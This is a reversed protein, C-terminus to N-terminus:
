VICLTLRCLVGAPNSTKLYQTDDVLGGCGRESVSEFFLPAALDGDIVKAAAREVNRNELDAVAHELDFRGVAIGEEATLIEVLPDDVIKGVFEAFLIADIQALIAKRQLPEHVGGLLGLDFERARSMGIHIQRENGRILGSRHM